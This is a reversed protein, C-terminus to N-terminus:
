ALLENSSYSKLSSFQKFPEVFVAFATAFTLFQCVINNSYKLILKDKPQM